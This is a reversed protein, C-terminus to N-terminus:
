HYWVYTMHCFTILYASFCFRIANRNLELFYLLLSVIVASKPAYHITYLSGLYVKLLYIIHVGDERTECSDVQDSGFWGEERMYTITLIAVGTLDKCM